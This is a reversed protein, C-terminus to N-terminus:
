KDTDDEDEEAKGNSETCELANGWVEMRLGCSCVVSEGNELLKHTEGCRPCVFHSAYVVQKGDVISRTTASRQYESYARTEVGGVITVYPDDEGDCECESELTEDYDSGHISSGIMRPIFIAMTLLVVISLFFCIWVIVFSKKM